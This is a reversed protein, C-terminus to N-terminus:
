VGRHLKREEVTGGKIDRKSVAEQTTVAGHRNSRIAKDKNLWHRMADPDTHQRALGADSRDVLRHM